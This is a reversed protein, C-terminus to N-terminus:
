NIQLLHNQVAFYIFDRIESYNENVDYSNELFDILIDPFDSHKQLVYKIESISNSFFIRRAITSNQGFEEVLCGNNLYNHHFQRNLAKNYVGKFDRNELLREILPTITNPNERRLGPYKYPFIITYLDFQSIENENDVLHWRLFEYIDREEIVQNLQIDLFTRTTLPLRNKVKIFTELDTM